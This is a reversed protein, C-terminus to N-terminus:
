PRATSLAQQLAARFGRDFDAAVRQKAIAPMDIRQRYVAQPIPILLLQLQKSRSTAWLGRRVKMPHDGNSWFMRGAAADNRQSRRSRTRNQYPDRYLYLAAYIQQVQGRSINGYRDLRADPGPVLLEHGKILGARTFAEEIKKRKRSGGSFHHGLIDATSGPEPQSYQIDRMTGGTSGAGVDKLFVAVDAGKTPRYPRVYIAKQFWPTPRDFGTAIATEIQKRVAHGVRHRAVAEAYEVQKAQGSLLLTAKEVGDIRATIKM